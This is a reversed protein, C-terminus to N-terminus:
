RMGNLCNNLGFRYIDQRQEEPKNELQKVVMDILYIVEDANNLMMTQILEDRTENDSIGETKLMEHFCPYIINKIIEQRNLTDIEDDIIKLLNKHYEQKDRSQSYFQTHLIFMIVFAAIVIGSLAIWGSTEKAPKKNQKTHSNHAM